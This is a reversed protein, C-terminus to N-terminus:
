RRWRDRLERQYELGDAPIDTRHAWIGAIQRLATIRRARREEIAEIDAAPQSSPASTEVDSKKRAAM